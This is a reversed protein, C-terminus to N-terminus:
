NDTKQTTKVVMIKERISSAYILKIVWLPIIRIVFRLPPFIVLKSFLNGNQHLARFCWAMDSYGRRCDRRRNFFNAGTRWKLLIDPHNAIKGGKGTLTVLFALDECLHADPYRISFREFVNGRVCFSPHLVSTGKALAEKVEHPDTLFTRKALDNGDDDIDMANSGILDLEPNELLM